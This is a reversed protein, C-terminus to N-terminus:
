NIIPSSPGSTRRMKEKRVQWKKLGESDTKEERELRKMTM